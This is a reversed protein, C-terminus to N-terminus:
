DKVSKECYANMIQTTPVNKKKKDLVCSPMPTGVNLRFSPLFYHRENSIVKLVLAIHMKLKAYFYWTARRIGYRGGAMCTTTLRHRTSRPSCSGLRRAATNQTLTDPCPFVRRCSRRPMMWPLRSCSNLTRMSQWKRIARREGSPLPRSHCFLVFVDHVFATQTHDQLCQHLTRVEGHYIVLQFFTDMLLIRDPLISGSDLLVPQSSM